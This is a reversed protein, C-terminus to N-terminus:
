LTASVENYSVKFGTISYCDPQKKHRRCLGVTVESFLLNKDVYLLPFLLMM